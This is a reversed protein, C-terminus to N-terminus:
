PLKGECTCDPPSDREGCRTWGALTVDYPLQIAQRSGQATIRQYTTLRDPGSPMPSYLCVGFSNSRACQSTPDETTATLTTGNTFFSCQAAFCERQTMIPDCVEFSPGPPGPPDVPPPDSCGWGSLAAHCLWLSIALLRRSMM